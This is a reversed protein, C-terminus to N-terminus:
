SLDVPLAPDQIRYLPPDFATSFAYVAVGSSHVRTLLDAFAPDVSSYPRLREADPRQVVFVVAAEHGDALLSELSRLHRRGRETQRDPFKAIGDDVHTCSKVEVYATDGTPSGLQFDTRGHDPLGPERELVSYGDFGPLLQQTVAAEFLENALVARVSVYLDDVRVAIADYDTARDPDDVPSCLIERGRVLVDELAGPDALFVREPSGNFRVTVVFRNPRDAIQGPILDGDHVLLHDTDTM